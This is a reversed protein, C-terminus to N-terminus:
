VFGEMQTWNTGESRAGAAVSDDEISRAGGRGAAKARPSVRIGVHVRRAAEVRDLFHTPARPRLPPTLLKRASIDACNM